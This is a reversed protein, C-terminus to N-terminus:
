RDDVTELADHVLQVMEVRTPTRRTQTFYLVMLDHDRDLYAMTGRSGGHSIADCDLGDLGIGWHLGYDYMGGPRDEHKRTAYRVTEEPLLRVDGLAGGNRFAELFRAYELTTSYLGGSGGLYERGVGQSTQWRRLEGPSGRYRPPVRELRPADSTTSFYSDEMALPELIRRELYDM